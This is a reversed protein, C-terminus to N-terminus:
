NPEGLLELKYLSNVTKVVCTRADKWSFELIKSTRLVRTTGEELGAGLLVMVSGRRPGKILVGDVHDTRMNEHSSQLRTLRVRGYRESSSESMGELGKNRYLDRCPLGRGFGPLMSSSVM